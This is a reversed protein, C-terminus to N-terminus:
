AKDKTESRILKVKYGAFLGWFVISWKIFSLDKYKLCLYEKLIKSWFIIGFWTFAIILNKFFLCLLQFLRVVLYFVHSPKELCKKGHHKIKYKINFM